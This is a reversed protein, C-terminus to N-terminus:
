SIFVMIIFCFTLIILYITVIILCSTLIILYIIVIILCFSMFILYFTMIILYIIVIILYFTMNHSFFDYIHSLFTFLNTETDNKETVPECSSEYNPHSKMKGCYYQLAVDSKYELVRWCTDSYWPARPGRRHQLLEPPELRLVCRGRGTRGTGGPPPAARAAKYFRRSGPFSFLGSLCDSLCVSLQRCWGLCRPLWRACQAEGKCRLPACPGDRQQQRRRDTSVLMASRSAAAAAPAVSCRM